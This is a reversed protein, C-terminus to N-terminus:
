ILFPVYHIYKMNFGTFFTQMKQESWKIGNAPIWEHEKQCHKEMSKISGNLLKTCGEYDCKVGTHITLGNIPVMDQPVSVNKPDVLNLGKTYEILKQRTELPIAKHLDRFHRTIHDPSLAYHHLRCILTQHVEDHIIYADM